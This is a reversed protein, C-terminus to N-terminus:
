HLQGTFPFVSNFTQPKCAKCAIILGQICYRRKYDAEIPQGNRKLATNNYEVEKAPLFAPHTTKHQM